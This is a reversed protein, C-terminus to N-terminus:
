WTLLLSRPRCALALTKILLIMPLGLVLLCMSMGAVVLRGGNGAEDKFAQITINLHDSGDWISRDTLSTLRLKELADNANSIIERLFIERSSTIIIYIWPWEFSVWKQSYLSSCSHISWHVDKTHWDMSEKGTSSLRECVLLTVRPSPWSAPRIWATTCM